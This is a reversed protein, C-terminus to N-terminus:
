STVTKGANDLGLLLISYEEKRTLHKYLGHMLTYM